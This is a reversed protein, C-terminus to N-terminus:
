NSYVIEIFAIDRLFDIKNITVDTVNLGTRNKLDEIMKDKLEPKILEIKEYIILKTNQRKFFINGDLIFTVVIISINFFALVTYNLQIANILGTAIVIFLYTMDKASIGETRYRLMSFIAFMGFAAGMSIKVHNFVFTLLFIVINFIIFTFVLDKKNYNRYYLFGILILITILDVGLSILFQKDIKIEAEQDKKKKKEKKDNNDDDEFISLEKNDKDARVENPSLSSAVILAIFFFIKSFSSNFTIPLM